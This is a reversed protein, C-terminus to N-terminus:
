LYQPRGHFEGALRLYVDAMAQSIVRTDGIAPMFNTDGVWRPVVHSHIHSDIGAGAVKGINMGTNFGASQYAQRLVRVCHAVLTAHEHLEEPRLDEPTAVHRYPAVMLHGPNYPFANMIVFNFTGRVLIFNAADNDELPKDCLICGDTQHGAIYQARWPAWLLEM